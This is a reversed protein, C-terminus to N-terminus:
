CEECWETEPFDGNEDPDQIGTTGQPEWEFEEEEEEEPWLEDEPDDIGEGDGENEPEPDDAEPEWSSPVPLPSMFISRISTYIMGNPLALSIQLMNEPWIPLNIGFIESSHMVFDVDVYVRVGDANEIFFDDAQDFDMWGQEGYVQNFAFNVYDDPYKLPDRCNECYIVGANAQAQAQGSALLMVFLLANILKRMAKGEM